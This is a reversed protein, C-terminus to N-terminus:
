LQNTIWWTLPLSPNFLRALLTSVDLIYAVGAVALYPGFPIYSSLSSRRVLLLTMGIVSGLISGFFITFWACEMGFTAGCVALLKVDGLGLGEKKRIKFYLWWVSLLLGPGMLLGGISELPTKVFPAELILGQSGPLYANALGILIGVFTAPYTIVDPIIMYDLDIFTIVVFLCIFAFACLGTVSPGFRLFSLACLTGTLLEIFMYRFPIKAGCHGCRGRLLLWSLVPINHWWELQRECQPCFSRAPSVLSVPHDLEKVGEHIPEYKGMPIRYACVGLFSGIITGFVFYLLALLLITQM